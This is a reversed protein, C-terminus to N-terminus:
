RIQYLTHVYATWDSTVDTHDHNEIQKQQM